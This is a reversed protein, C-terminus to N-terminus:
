PLTGGVGGERVQPFYLSNGGFPQTGAVKCGPTNTPAKEGTRDCDFSPLLQATPDPRANPPLYANGRNEPTRTLAPLTAEGAVIMQPLVHGNSKSDPLTARIGGLVAPPVAFFDGIKVQSYELFSLFPNLQRLFPGASALTPDLGRLTRSLAPLGKDGASILPDVNDFLNELDPALDHLSAVTPQLDDLVPDLDRLLPETNLSFTRV